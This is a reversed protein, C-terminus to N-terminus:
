DWYFSSCNVFNSNIQKIMTWKLFEDADSDYNIVTNREKIKRKDKKKSDNWRLDYAQEQSRLRPRSM